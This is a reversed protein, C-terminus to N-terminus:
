RGEAKAIAAEAINRARRTSTEWGIEQNVCEALIDRLAEFLDPAAAILCALQILEPSAPGLDIAGANGNVGVFVHGQSSIGEYRLTHKAEKVRWACTM